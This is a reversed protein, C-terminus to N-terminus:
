ETTTRLNVKKAKKLLTFFIPLGLSYERFAFSPDILSRVRVGRDHATAIENVLRQESFVFLALDISSAAGALTQAIAGNASKEWPVKAGTPAFQVKIINDGLQLPPIQRPPKQM